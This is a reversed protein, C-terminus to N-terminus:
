NTESADAARNRRDCLPMPDRSDGSHRAYRNLHHWEAGDLGCHICCADDDWEHQPNTDQSM